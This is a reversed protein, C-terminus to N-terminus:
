DNRVGPQILKCTGDTCEDMIVCAEVYTLNTEAHGDPLIVSWGRNSSDNLTM